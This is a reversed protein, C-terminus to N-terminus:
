LLEEADKYIAAYHEEKLDPLKSAGYKAVLEKAEKQKGSKMIAGIRERVMEKTVKPDEEKKDEKPPNEESKTEGKPLEKQKEIGKEYEERSIENSCQFDIGTPIVEGKPLIWYSDSEGHYYYKDCEAVKTEEEKVEKKTEVKDAVPVKVVPESAQEGTFSRTGFTSIFSLLEENSNFEATIKM